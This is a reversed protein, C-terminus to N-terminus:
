FPGGAGVEEIHEIDTGSMKSIPSGTNVHHRNKELDFTTLDTTKAINADLEEREKESLHSVDMAVEDGFLAGVEELSLGKTESFCLVVYPLMLTTVVIFVLYFRWGITNFAPGAATTYITTMLFLGSVSWGVGKSRIHTPFIESCYVYSSVDIGFGYFTVFLFMFLVAVAQGAKNPNDATGYRSNLATVISLCVICGSIGITIIRIRGIRDILLANVYNLIAAWSNYVALLLLPMSGTVGLNNLELVMYNAVVLVGTSQCMAQLYFGYFMRKRYRRDFILQFMNPSPSGRELALQTQIQVFEEKAGVHQPDDSNAHLKELVELGKQDHGNNILWRPSEPIWPSGVLLLLPVVIQLACLLRWQIAPDTEYYIGFGAWGAAGYAACIIFGHSGVIRGRQAPPSIESIYTPITCNMFGVGIGNLFRGVLFMAIHVSATQIVASVICLVTIVQIARKRGLTDLLWFVTWCGICGAGAYLGNSAGIIHGGYESTAKFNFYSFFSPLGIVSGIIASNFGYTFSGLAVFFAVAFNYKNAKARVHGM